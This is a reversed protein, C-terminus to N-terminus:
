LDRYLAVEQNTNENKYGEIQSNSIHLYTSTLNQSFVKDKRIM